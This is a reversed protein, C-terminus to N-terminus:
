LVKYIIHQMGERQLYITYSRGELILTPHLPIESCCKGFDVVVTPHDTASPPLLHSVSSLMPDAGVTLIRDAPLQAALRVLLRAQRRARPHDHLEHDIVDDSYYGYTPDPWLCEKVLRFALPSHVGYGKTHRWRNILSFSKKFLAPPNM